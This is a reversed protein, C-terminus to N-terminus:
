KNEPPTPMGGGRFGTSGPEPRQSAAVKQVRPVLNWAPQSGTKQAQFWTGSSRSAAPKKPESGPELLWSSVNLTGDNRGTGRSGRSKKM